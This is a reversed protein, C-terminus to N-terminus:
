VFNRGIISQALQSTMFDCVLVGLPEQGQALQEQLWPQLSLAPVGAYVPPFGAYLCCSAYNLVLEYTGSAALEMAHLIDPRKEDASHLKYHDQVYLSGLQFSANNQWGDLCPVGVAADAYRSLIHMKGRASGVTDPLQRELSVCDPYAALMAELTQAFGATSRKPAAEEKISVLLFESPNARLFAAMQGLLTHFNMKQDVFSHVVQLEDDVLQLRVDLFRVGVQLQQAVTLTQCKGFVDAFSYLAGSDHTGPISLAALPQGDDLQTMWGSADAKPSRIPAAAFAAVAALLVMSILTRIFRKKMRREETPISGNNYWVRGFFSLPCPQFPPLFLNM